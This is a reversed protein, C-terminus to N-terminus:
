SPTDWHPFTNGLTLPHEGTHPTHGLSPPYRGTRTPPQAGTLSPMSMYIHNTHTLHPHGQGWIYIWSIMSAWIHGWISMVSVCTCRQTWRIVSRKLRHPQFTRFGIAISKSIRSHIHEDLDIRWNDSGLLLSRCYWMCHQINVRHCHQSASWASSTTHEAYYQSVHVFRHLGTIYTHAYVYMYVYGVVKKDSM